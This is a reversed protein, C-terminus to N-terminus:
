SNFIAPVKCNKLAWSMWWELWILRALLADQRDNFGPQATPFREKYKELAAKVQEVHEKTIYSCGPHDSMLGGDGFFLENLGVHELFSAWQTYGPHRSNGNGTMADGDFVPAEPLSVSQVRVKIQNYDKIEDKEPIHFKAEGIYIDYSM